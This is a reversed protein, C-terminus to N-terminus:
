KEQKVRLCKGLKTCHVHISKWLVTGNSLFSFSSSALHLPLSVTSCSNRKKKREYTSSCAPAAVFPSPNSKIMETQLRKWTLNQPLIAVWFGQRSRKVLCCVRGPERRGMCQVRAIGSDEQVGASMQLGSIYSVSWLWSSLFHQTLFFYRSLDSKLAWHDLLNFNGPPNVCM